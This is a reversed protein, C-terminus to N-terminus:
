VDKDFPARTISAQHFIARIGTRKVVGGQRAPNRRRRVTTVGLGFGFEKTAHSRAHAKVSEPVQAIAM